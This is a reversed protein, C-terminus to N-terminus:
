TGSMPTLNKRIRSLSQPAIGLYSAIYKLPVKQLILSGNTLLESYREEATKSQLENMIEETYFQVELVLKRIFENWSAYRCLAFADSRNMEWVHSDELAQIYDDTPIQHDFSRQSTFCYPPETFYKTVEEGDILLFYRLYGSELFYLKKCVTGATLLIEEKKYYKRTLCAAISSWEEEKLSTFTEIFLRFPHQNGM